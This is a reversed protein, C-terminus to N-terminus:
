QFEPKRDCAQRQPHQQWHGEMMELEDDTIKIEMGARM